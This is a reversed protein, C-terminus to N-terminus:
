QGAITAYLAALKEGVAGRSFNAAVWSRGRAGAAPADASLLLRALADGLSVPDAPATVGAGASAAQPAMALNNTMVVPTGAILAEVLAYCFNEFESNIILADAACLCQWKHRGSQWGAFTVAPTIGLEAAHRRLMATYEPEGDGVLLLHAGKVTARAHAFAALTLDVRKVPHLRGVFVTVPAADPLNLRARGAARLAPRDELGIEMKVPLPIVERLTAAGLMAHDSGDLEGQTAFICAAANGLARALGLRKFIAKKIASRSLAERVLMGHPHWCTPIGRSQAHLAAAVVDPCWLGHLHVVGPRLQDILARADRALGGPLFKGRPSTWHWLGPEHHTIWTLAPDSPPLAQSCAFPRVTPQTRLAEILEVFALSTGGASAPISETIHLATLLPPPLTVGQNTRVDGFAAGRRSSQM